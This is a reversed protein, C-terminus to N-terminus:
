AIVPYFIILLQSFWEPKEISCFYNFEIPQLASKDGGIFYSM